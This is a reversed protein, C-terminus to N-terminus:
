GAYETMVTSLPTLLQLLMLNNITFQYWPFNCSSGQLTTNKNAQTNRQTHNVVTM